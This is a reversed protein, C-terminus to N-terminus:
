LIRTSSVMDLFPFLSWYLLAFVKLFHVPRLRADQVVVVNLFIFLIFQWFLTSISLMPLEDISNEAEITNAAIRVNKSM